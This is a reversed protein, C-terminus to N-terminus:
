KLGMNNNAADMPNDKNITAPKITLSFILSLKM